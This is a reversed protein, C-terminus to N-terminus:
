VVARWINKFPQWIGMLSRKLRRCSEQIENNALKEQEKESKQHAETQGFSINLRSGLVGAPTLDTCLVELVRAFIESRWQLQTSTEAFLVLLIFAGKISLKKWLLEATQRHQLGPSNNAANQSMQIQGYNILWIIKKVRQSM